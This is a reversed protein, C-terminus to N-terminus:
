TRSRTSDPVKAPENSRNVLKCLVPTGPKWWIVGRAVGVMATKGLDYADKRLIIALQKDQPMPGVAYRGVVKSVYGETSTDGNNLYVDWERTSDDEWAMDEHSQSTRHAADVATTALSDTLSAILASPPTHDLFPIWAANPNHKFGKGPGFDLISEENRLYDAGVILGYPLGDVVRFTIKRVRTEAPFKLPLTTSGLIRVPPTKNSPPNAAHLAGRGHKTVATVSRGFRATMHYFDLSMYSGGGGAGTDVLIDLPFARKRM